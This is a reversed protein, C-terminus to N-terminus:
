EAVSVGLNNGNARETPIYNDREAAADRQLWNVGDGVPSNILEVGDGPTNGNYRVLTSSGGGDLNIGDEAGYYLLWRGVEETTAGESAHRRGDVVLFFVYRSDNSTGVGTRPHVSDNGVVVEGEELVIAFGSVALFVSALNGLSRVIAARGDDFVVFAPTGSVPSVLVGDSVALGLL